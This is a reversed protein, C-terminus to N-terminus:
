SVAPNALIVGAGSVLVEAVLEQPERMAGGEHNKKEGTGLQFALAELFKLSNLIERRGGSYFVMQLM